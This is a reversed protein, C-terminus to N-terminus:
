DYAYGLGVLVKTDTQRRGPAPDSEWDLNLQTMAYLGNSLPFRFGTRTQVLVSAEESLGRYGDQVHFLEIDSGTLKHQFDIHWGLAAFRESSAEYRDLNVMDLGGKLSFRTTETDYFQYGYGGGIVTRLDIDRFRDRQLQVHTFLFQKKDFFDDYSGYARRSDDAKVNEISAQDFEGGITYRYDRALVTIEADAHLQDSSSNGESQTFAFNAKGLVRYGRGSEEPNPNIYAIDGIAPMSESEPKSQTKLALQQHSEDKLMVDVTEDTELQAVEDWDIKLEGAYGTSFTLTNGRKAIVSGSLRDGNKLTVRDALAASSILSLIFGLTILKGSVKFICRM